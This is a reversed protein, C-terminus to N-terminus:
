SKLARASAVVRVTGYAVFAGFIMMAIGIGVNVDGHGKALISGSLIAGTGGVGGAYRASPRRSSSQDKGSDVFIEPDKRALLLGVSIAALLLIVALLQTWPWFSPAADTIIASGVVTLFISIVAGGVGVKRADVQKQMM